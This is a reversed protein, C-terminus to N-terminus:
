TNCLVLLLQYNKLPISEMITFRVKISKKRHYIGWNIIPILIKGKYKMNLEEAKM